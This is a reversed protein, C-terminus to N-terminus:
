INSHVDSAQHVGRAKLVGHDNMKCNYRKYTICYKYKQTHLYKGKIESM